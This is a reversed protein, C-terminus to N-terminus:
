DWVWDVMLDLVFYIRYKGVEGWNGPGQELGLWFRREGPGSCYSGFNTETERGARRLAM